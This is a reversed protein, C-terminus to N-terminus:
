KDTEADKEEEEALEVHPVQKNSVNGGVYKLKKSKIFALSGFELGFCGFFFGTLTDNLPKGNWLFVFSTVTFAIITLFCLIVIGKSYSTKSEIEDLDELSQGYGEEDPTYKRNEYSQEPARGHMAAM